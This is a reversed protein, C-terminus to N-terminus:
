GNKSPTDIAGLSSLRITMAQVSVSFRDALGTIAEDVDINEPLKGVEVQLLSLPMLLEAAFQNAEVEKDNSLTKQGQTRFWVPLGEDVHFDEDSHLLLHGIEHAITFRCRTQPHASNVGIISRGKADRHALGSMDGEFPEYRIEAGIMEALREVPVPAKTVKGKMLLARAKKRSLSYRAAM